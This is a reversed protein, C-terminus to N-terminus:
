WKWEEVIEPDAELILERVKALTKGRWDWAEQDERRNICVSIGSPCPKEHVAGVRAGLSSREAYDAVAPRSAAGSSEKQRSMSLDTPLLAVFRQAAITQGTVQMNMVPRRSTAAFGNPAFRSSEARVLM